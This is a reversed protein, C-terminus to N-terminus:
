LGFDEMSPQVYFKSKPIPPAQDSYGWQRKSGNPGKTTNTFIKCYNDFLEHSKSIIAAEYHYPLGEPFKAMVFLDGASVGDNLDGSQIRFNRGGKKGIFEHIKVDKIENTKGNAGTFLIDVSRDWFSHNRERPKYSEKWGWFSPERNRVAIPIKFVSHHKAKGEEEGSLLTMVFTKTPKIEEAQTSGSSRNRKDRPRFLDDETGEETPRRQGAGSQDQSEDALYKPDIEALFDEDLEWADDALAKFSDTMERFSERDEPVTLDYDLRVSFEFNEYLGGNTLNSSGVLAVGEHDKREFLYLKPHFTGSSRRFVYVRVGAKMLLELGQRSTVKLDVGVVAEVIGEASVFNELHEFLRSVGSQKAFAVAMYVSDFRDDRRSLLDAILDGSRKHSGNLPQNIVSVTAM